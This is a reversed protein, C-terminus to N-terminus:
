SMGLKHMSKYADICVGPLAGICPSWAVLDEACGLALLKHEVAVNLHNQESARGKEDAATQVTDACLPSQIDNVTRSGM